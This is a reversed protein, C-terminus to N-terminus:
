VRRPHPQILRAAAEETEVEGAYSLGTGPISIRSSVRGRPSISTRFGRGGISYGIGSSSLNIRIGCGLKKSRRFKMGM